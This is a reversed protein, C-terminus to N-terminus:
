ALDTRNTTFTGYGNTQSVHKFNNGQFNHAKCAQSATAEIYKTLWTPNPKMIKRFIEDDSKSFQSCPNQKSFIIYTNM